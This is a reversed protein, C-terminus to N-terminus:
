FWLRIIITSCKNDFNVAYLGEELNKLAWIEKFRKIHNMHIVYKMSKVHNWEASSFFDGTKKWWDIIVELGYYSM